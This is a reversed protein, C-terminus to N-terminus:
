NRCKTSRSAVYNRHLYLGYDTLTSTPRTLSIPAFAGKRRRRHLFCLASLALRMPTARKLTTPREGRGRWGPAVPEFAYQKTCLHVVPLLDRTGRGQKRAAERRRARVRAREGLPARVAVRLVSLDRRPSSSSCKSM